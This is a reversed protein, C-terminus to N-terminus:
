DDVEFTQYFNTGDFKLIRDIANEIEEQELEESLSSSSSVFRALLGCTNYGHVVDFAFWENWDTRPDYPNDITSLMRAMM